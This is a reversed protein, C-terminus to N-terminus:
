TLLFKFISWKWSYSAKLSLKSIYYSIAMLSVFGSLRPLFLSLPIGLIKVRTWQIPSNLVYSCSYPKVPSMRNSFEFCLFTFLHAPFSSVLRWLPQESVWDHRLRQSGMSQLVGPKGRRWWRRSSAWVWDVSDTIGDLWRMRQQRKEEQGWGKGADPDKRILWSKAAPPWLIPAEAEADTRRIFIWPQNGKPHVPQSEKCPQWPRGAWLSPPFLSLRHELLNNVWWVWGIPFQPLPECALTVQETYRSQTNRVVPCEM